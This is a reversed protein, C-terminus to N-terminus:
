ELIINGGLSTSTKKVVTVVESYTIGTKDVVKIRYTNAGTVPKFDYAWYDVVGIKPIINAGRNGFTGNKTKKQLVFYRSNDTIDSTWGLVTQSPNTWLSAQLYKIGTAPQSNAANVTIQVTDTATLGNTQTATVSFTYVGAVLGTITTSASTASTITAAGGTVKIWQYGTISGSSAVATATVTVSNTPLQIAQNIGANVTPPILPTAANVTISKDSTCTLGSVNDTVTIRYVYSGQTLGTATTSASTPSTISGGTGSVKSWLFSVANAGSGTATLGVSNVPLTITVPTTGANCTPAVPAAIVTVQVQDVATYGTTTYVTLMFTYIGASVFDVQTSASSPNQINCPAGSLLSWSYGTITGSGGTGSGSLTVSNTPLTITQDTGANATPYVIAANVTVNKTATCTLGNNDTATLTFVYSGQVLGTVTTNQASANTITAAGGSTKVWAWSQISGGTTSTAVGNLSVSNVPLTITASPIATCTPPTNSTNNLILANSKYAGTTITGPFSVNLVNIYTAGLNTTVSGATQNYVYRLESTSSVAKPSKTSAADQGSFAKWQALTYNNGYAEITVNDDIPRSFNNNNGTYFNPTGGVDNRLYMCKQSADKAVFQNNYLTNNNVPFSTTYRTWLLASNGCDYVVNGRANCNNSNNFFIGFDGIYAVNNSDIDVYTTAGDMYIGDAENSNSGGPTGVGAGIGNIVTNFKIKRQNTYSTQGQSPFFYIGGGDDLVNCFTDVYNYYVVTGEGDAKMGNYGSNTITNSNITGWDGYSHIGSYTGVSEEGRGAMTGSNRIINNNITVYDSSALYVACNNSNNFTNNTVTPHSSNPHFYIADQGSFDFDCSNITPYSPPTVAGYVSAANSGEFDINSINVYNRGTLNVLYDLTAVRVNTPTSNSYIRIKRTSPNYYWENQVDLTNANNQVFCGFNSAPAYTNDTTTYNITSGAQSTITNVDIVYRNMRIVIQSGTWDRVNTLAACTIRDGSSYTYSEYGTNPYRGMVANTGNISVMKTATVSASVASTSEWINSGLNTFAFVDTFGTIIPKAGTGYSSIIVNNGSTGSGNINLTGYWTNGCQFYFRNGATHSLSNFKALSQFPFSQTGAAADSGSFQSFYYDTAMAHGCVLILIITILKKM